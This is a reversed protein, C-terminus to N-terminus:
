KFRPWLDLVEPGVLSIVADVDPRLRETWHDGVEVDARRGLELLPRVRAKLRNVPGHLGARRAARAASFAARSVFRSRPESGRNVVEADVFSAGVESGIIRSLRELGASPDAFFEEYVFIHIHERSFAASWHDVLVRYRSSREIDPYLAVAADLAVSAALRGTTVLHLRHSLMRAIPERVIAIVEVDPGVLEAVREPDANALYTPGVEGRPRLGDVFQGTYWDMGRALFKDFFFTEKVNSPMSVTGARRLGADLWTTGCRPAGIVLFDVVPRV